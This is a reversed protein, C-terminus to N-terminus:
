TMLTPCVCGEKISLSLMGGLPLLENLKSYVIGKIPQNHQQKSKVKNVLSSEYNHHVIFCSNTSDELRIGLRDSRHVDKM